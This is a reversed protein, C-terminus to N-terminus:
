CKPEVGGTEDMRIQIIRNVAEILIDVDRRLSKIEEGYDPHAEQISPNKVETQNGSISDIKLAVDLLLEEIGDLRVMCVEHRVKSIDTFKVSFM